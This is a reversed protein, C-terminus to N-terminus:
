KGAEVGEKDGELAKLVDEFASKEGGVLGSIGIAAILYANLKLIGQENDRVYNSIWQEVTQRTLKYDYVKLGCFCASVIENVAWTQRGMLEFINRNPLMAELEELAQLTFKLQREEGGIDIKVSRNIM